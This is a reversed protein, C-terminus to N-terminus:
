LLVTSIFNSCHLTMPDHIVKFVVNTCQTNLMPFSLIADM